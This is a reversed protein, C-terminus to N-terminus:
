QNNPKQNTNTVPLMDIAHCPCQNMCAQCGTCKDYDFKYRNGKGLKLIAGEEPCAGYCGDCEFCNGCSYCRTAEYVAQEQSLGQVVETFDKVREAVDIEHILSRDSDIQYWLQLMDYTVVQHKEESIYTGGRLWADINRAAKKGHGTSITVSRSSPVMDGGAFLGEYGTMMHENVLITGDSNITVGSVHSLLQSEIDQGIALVMADAHLIEYEGTPQSIGNEDLAMIEVKYDNGNVSILNRLWHIKVGEAEAEAAEFEHATMNNRDSFFIIMAEEAGLRKAVRATDMATNGGGLVAVRRGLKPPQNNGVLNLFETAEMIPGCDQKPIDLHRGIQAGIALFVADFGDNQKEKIVDEVKHNLTIKVGMDAIMKIEAQLIDRPLRYAPIGYNMMGGVIQNADRIEVQHGALRLHYAAALGSPGAGIILVKQGSEETNQSYSWNQNLALDGLMREVQQISVSSDSNVRNCGTECPHYCVRGHIAPMPQNIVLKQWAKKFERERVLALFGQIDNGTPCSQNCPPLYDKYVPLIAPKPGTGTLNFLDSKRVIQKESM